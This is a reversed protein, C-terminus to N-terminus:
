SHDHKPIDFKKRLNEDLRKNADDLSEIREKTSAKAKLDVTKIDQSDLCESFSSEMEKFYQVYGEQLARTEEPPNLASLAARAEAYKDVMRKVFKQAGSSMTGGSKLAKKMASGYKLKEGFSMEANNRIQDYKAFWDVIDRRPETEKSANQNNVPEPVEARVAGSGLLGITLSLIVIFPQNNSRTM